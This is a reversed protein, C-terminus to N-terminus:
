TMDVCVTLDQHWPVLWNANGTKDFLTARVPSASNRLTEKVISRVKISCALERIVPSLQLLNRIAYVGGRSRVSREDAIHSISKILHEIEPKEFVGPLISFGDQELAGYTRLQNQRPTDMVKLTSRLRAGRVQIRLARSTSNAL